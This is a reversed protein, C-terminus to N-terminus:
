CGATNPHPTHRMGTTPSSHTRHRITHKRTGWRRWDAKTPSANSSSCLRDASPIRSSSTNATTNCCNTSATNTHRISPRNTHRSNPLIADDADRSPRHRIADENNKYYCALHFRCASVSNNKLGDSLHWNTKGGFHMRGCRVYLLVPPKRSGCHLMKSLLHFSLPIYADFGTASHCCPCKYGGLCCGSWNM